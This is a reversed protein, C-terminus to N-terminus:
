FQSLHPSLKKRSLFHLSTLTSCQHLNLLSTSIESLRALSSIEARLIKDKCFAVNSSPSSHQEVSPTVSFSTPVSADINAEWDIASVSVMASDLDIMEDDKDEFVVQHKSRRSPEPMESEFDLMSQENREYSQCHPNWGSSDPTLFSKRCEHLERETPVRAHFCSFQQSSAHVACSTGLEQMANLRHSM